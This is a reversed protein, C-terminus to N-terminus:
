DVKILTKPIKPQNYYWIVCANASTQAVFMAVLAVISLVIVKLNKRSSRRM